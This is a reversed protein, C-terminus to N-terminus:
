KPTLDDLFRSDGRIGKSAIPRPAFPVRAVAHSAFGSLGSGTRTGRMFSWGLRVFRDRLRRLSEPFSSGQNRLLALQRVRGPGARQM